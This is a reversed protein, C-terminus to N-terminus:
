PLSLIRIHCFFIWLNSVTVKKANKAEKGDLRDVVLIGVEARQSIGYQPVDQDVSLM